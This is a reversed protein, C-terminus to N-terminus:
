RGHNLWDQFSTWRGPVYKFSDGSENVAKIDKYDGFSNLFEMADWAQLTGVKVGKLENDGYIAVAQAM